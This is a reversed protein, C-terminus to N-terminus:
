AWIHVFILDFNCARSFARAVNCGFLSFTLSLFFFLESGSDFAELDNAKPRISRDKKTQDPLFIQVEKSPRGSQLTQGTPGFHRIGISRSM